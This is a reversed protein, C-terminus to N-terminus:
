GLVWKGNKLINKGDIMVTAKYIVGDLHVPVDNSGGFSINNGLAVHATGLVKEDELSYGCLKASSNTGIGFEAVLRSNKGFRSLHRSLRKASNGGAIRVARGNKISIYLPERDQPLIGMGSDVVLTGECGLEEPAIAAEGAPLNSFKGSEHVLGIDAYGQRDKISIYLETGNPASLRAEKGITLIDKIKLSLRSIKQYDTRSLRSFTQDTIDPMSICRAGRKCAARRGATHSISLSTIAIIVDMRQMYEQVVGPLDGKELQSRPIQLLQINKSRMYAAKYLLEAKELQPEDCIVLVVEDKKIQLCEKVVTHASKEMNTM